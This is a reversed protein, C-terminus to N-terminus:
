PTCIPFVGKNLVLFSVTRVILYALLILLLGGISLTVTKQAKALAFKDSGSSMYLYGGIILGALAAAAGLIQLGIILNTLACCIDGIQVSEFKSITCAWPGSPGGAAYAKPILFSLM